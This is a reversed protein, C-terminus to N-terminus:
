PSGSFAKLAEAVVAPDPEHSQGVLTKVSGQPLAKLLERISDRAYPLDESGEMLLVPQTVQAAVNAPPVGDDLIAYDYALTPAVDNMISWDEPYADQFAKVDDPSMFNEMFLSVADDFKDQAILKDLKERTVLFVSKMEEGLWPPEFMAVRSVREKLRAAAKLVLAAGTSVGYLDAQGGMAVVLAEIDDIERDVSYPPTDASEGRGRRDYIVATFNDALMQALERDGHYDRYGVTGNVLIVVPGAGYKEFVIKTGDKSKVHLM